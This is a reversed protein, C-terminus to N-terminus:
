ESATTTTTTDPETAVTTTTPEPETADSSSTTTTTTESPEDATPEAGADAPPGTPVLEEDVVIAVQKALEAIRAALEELTLEEQRLMNLQQRIAALQRQGEGTLRVPQGNGFVYQYAAALTECETCDTNISIAVNDTTLSDVDGMALVVQISTAVTQCENCSAFAVAANDADVDSDMVRKVHFALKFVSSGDRTNVAVAASDQGDGQASAAVPVAVVVSATVLAALIGKLIRM